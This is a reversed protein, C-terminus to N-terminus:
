QLTPYQKVKRMKYLINKFMVHGHENVTKDEIVTALIFWLERPTKLM